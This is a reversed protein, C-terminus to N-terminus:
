QHMAEPCYIDEIENSHIEIIDNKYEVRIVGFSENNLLISQNINLIEEDTFWLKGSIKEGYKLSSFSGQLFELTFLKNTLIEVLNRHIISELSCGREWFYTDSLELSIYLENINSERQKIIEILLDKIENLFFSVFKYCSHRYNDTPPYSSLYKNHKQLSNLIEVKWNEIKLLDVKFKNSEKDLYNEFMHKRGKEIIGIFKVLPIVSLIERSTIRNNNNTVYFEIHKGDFKQHSELIYLVKFMDNIVAFDDLNFPFYLCECLNIPTESTLYKAYFM